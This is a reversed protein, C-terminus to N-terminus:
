MFVLDTKDTIFSPVCLFFLFDSIRWLRMYVWIFANEVNKQIQIHTNHLKTSFVELELPTPFQQM